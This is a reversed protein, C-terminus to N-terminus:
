PTDRLPKPSTYPVETRGCAQSRRRRAVEVIPTAIRGTAAAHIELIRPDVVFVAWVRESAETAATLFRNDTLRMDRRLWAISRRM